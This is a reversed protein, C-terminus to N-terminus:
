VSRRMAQILKHVRAEQQERENLLSAAWRQLQVAYTDRPLRLDYYLELARFSRGQLLRDLRTEDMGDILTEIDYLAVDVFAEWTHRWAPQLQEDMYRREADWGPIDLKIQEVTAQFIVFTERADVAHRLSAPATQFRHPDRHRLTKLFYENNLEIDEYPLLSRVANAEADSVTWRLLLHESDSDRIHEYLNESYSPRREQELQRYIRSQQDANGQLRKLARAAYNQGNRLRLPPVDLKLTAM